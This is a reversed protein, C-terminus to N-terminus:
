NRNDNDLVFFPRMSNGHTLLYYMKTQNNRNDPTKM